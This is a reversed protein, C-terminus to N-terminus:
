MFSLMRGTFNGPGLRAEVYTGIHTQPFRSSDRGHASQGDVDSVLLV